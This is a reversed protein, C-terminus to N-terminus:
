AQLWRSFHYRVVEINRKANILSLLQPPYTSESASREPLPRVATTIIILKVQDPSCTATRHRGKPSSNMPMRAGIPQVRQQSDRREVKSFPTPPSLQSASEETIPTFMPMFGGRPVTQEPDESYYGELIDGTGPSRCTTGSDTPQLEDSPSLVDPETGPLNLAPPFHRKEITEQNNPPLPAPRPSSFSHLLAFSTPSVVQSTPRPPSPVPPISLEFDGPHSAMSGTSSRRKLTRTRPLGSVNPNNFFVGTKPPVPPADPDAQFWHYEGGPLTTSDSRTLGPKSRFRSDHPM